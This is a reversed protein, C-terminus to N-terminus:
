SDRDDALAPDGLEVRDFSQAVERMVLDLHTERARHRCGRELRERADALEDGVVMNQPHPDGPRDRRDDPGGGLELQEVEHRALRAELLREQGLVAALGARGLGRLHATAALVRAGRWALVATANGGMGSRRRRYPKPLM